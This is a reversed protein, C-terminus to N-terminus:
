DNDGMLMGGLGGFNDLVSGEGKSSNAGTAFRRALRAFPLSQLWIPGPGTLTAFVLGEGGFFASKISSNFQIDYDVSPGLAVICGTDVRLTEGAQLERHMMTGCAHILAIGDGSLKQMIFGEGGLLGAGIKKQFAISIEIGKAGCLFSDKQAIIEGGLKDLHLAELRGPYPAGFAVTERAQATNTFVTMFLSEGTLVRKGASMMKNWFSDGKKGPDGFVTEMQIGASMYMMAGAEAIVAEGPDLVIEAYQMDDGFIQYDIEDAIRTHSDLAMIPPEGGGGVAATFVDSCKQCRVQKGLNEPAIRYQMQCYPCAITQM